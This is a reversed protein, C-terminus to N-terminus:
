GNMKEDMQEERMKSEHNSQFYSSLISCLCFSTDDEESASECGIEPGQMKILRAKEM